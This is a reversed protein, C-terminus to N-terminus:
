RAAAFDRADAGTASSAGTMAANRVVPASVCVSSPRLKTASAILSAPVPSSRAIRRRKCSLAAAQDQGPARREYGLPMYPCVAGAGGRGRDRADFGVLALHQLNRIQVRNIHLLAAIRAPPRRHRQM